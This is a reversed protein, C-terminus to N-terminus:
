GTHLLNTNEAKKTEKDVKIVWKPAKVFSRFDVRRIPREMQGETRM